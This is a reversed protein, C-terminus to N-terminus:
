SMQDSLQDVYYKLDLKEWEICPNIFGGALRLTTEFVLEAAPCQSGTKIATMIQLVVLPM